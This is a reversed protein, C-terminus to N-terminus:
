GVTHASSSGVARKSVRNACSRRRRKAARAFTPTFGLEKVIERVADYDYGADLCLGQPAEPTPEPRPVVIGELTTRTLTM